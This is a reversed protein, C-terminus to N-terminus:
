NAEEELHPHLLESVDIVQRHVCEACAQDSIKDCIQCIERSKQWKSGGIRIWGELAWYLLGVGRDVTGRQISSSLLQTGLHGWIEEEWVSGSQWGILNGLRWYSKASRSSSVPFFLVIFSSGSARTLVSIGLMLGVALCQSYWSCSVGLPFSDSQKRWDMFQCPWAPCWSQFGLSRDRCLGPRM